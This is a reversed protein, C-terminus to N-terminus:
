KDYNAQFNSKAGCLHHQQWSMNGIQLKLYGPQLSLSPLAFIAAMLYIFGRCAYLHVGGCGWPNWSGWSAKQARTPPV